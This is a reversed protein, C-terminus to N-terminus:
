IDNLLRDVVANVNGDYEELLQLNKQLNSFGMSNLSRIETAYEGSLEEEESAEEQEVEDQWKALNEKTLVSADDVVSWNNNNIVSDVKSIVVKSNVLDYNKPQASYVVSPGEFDHNKLVHAILHGILQSGLGSPEIQSVFLKTYRPEFTNSLDVVPIRHKVAM